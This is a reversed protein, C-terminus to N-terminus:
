ATRRRGVARWTRAPLAMLTLVALSAVSLAIGLDQGRPTYTFVVEHSGEPLHVAGFAHDADVIIAPEGDVAVSWDDQISDALVLYGAGGADVDVAVTDGSDERVEIRASRGDTAAGSESLVVTDSDIDSHAVTDVRAAADEIVLHDSAWRIRPLSSTREWVAGNDDSVLRLGDDAPKIVSMVPVGAADAIVVPPASDGEWSLRLRWPGGRLDEGAIATPLPTAGRPYEVLRRTSAVTEGDPSVVDVVIFGGSPEAPGRVMQLVIGRLPGAPLAVEIPARSIENESTGSVVPIPEGPVATESDAVLYRAALRDLGPSQWLAMDLGSPLKWYTASQRGGPAIRNILESYPESFFVHGTASRLGYYAPTGTLMTTGTTVMRDRGIHESLYDHMDTVPYFREADVQEWVPAAAIIGQAVVLFPVILFGWAALWPRWQHLFVILVAVGTSAVAVALWASIPLDALQPTDLWPTVEGRVFFALLVVLLGFGGTLTILALRRMWSRGGAHPRLVADAGFGSLFAASLLLVTVLRGIANGSFVPLEGIWDTFPAQVYVLFACLFAVGAFYTRAGRVVSFHPRAAIALVCLVAAAAGFYANAEIPNTETYFVGGNIGWTNPFLSTLAMRLPQVAYFGGARYSTDLDLFQVAFVALQVAALGVGLLLGMSLRSVQAAAERWRGAEEGRAKLLIRMLVYGAAAYIGWGTVAPFGGFLLAAVALAVPVVSRLTQLQLSREVSWFLWPLMAAVASQPWNTWAIMFGTGAYVMGALWSAHRGLSVRRLFLATGAAAVILITLREWGPALGPPLLWWALATPALLGYSPVSGLESGGGQRADWGPLDGDRLRDVMQARGPIFFDLTDGVYINDTAIPRYDDVIWPPNNLLVGGGYFATRGILSTGLTVAIFLVAAAVMSATLLRSGLRGLAPVSTETKRTEPQERLPAAISM